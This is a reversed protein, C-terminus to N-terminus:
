ITPRMYDVAVGYRLRGADELSECRTVRATVMNIFSAARADPHGEIACVADAVASGEGDGWLLDAGGCVLPLIVICNGRSLKRTSFFFMGSRSFNRVVGIYNESRNLQSFTIASNADYRPERRNDNLVDPM